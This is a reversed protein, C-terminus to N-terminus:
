RSEYNKNNLKNIPISIGVILSVGRGFMLGDPPKLKQMGKDWLSSNGIYNLPLGRTTNYVPDFFSIRLAVYSTLYYGWKSKDYDILFPSTLLLGVSMANCAHGWAKNGDDNLGDGVADLVISATYIGIVKVSEPIKFHKKDSDQANGTFPIFLLLFLAILNKM